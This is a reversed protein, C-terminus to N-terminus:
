PPPSPECTNLSSLPAVRAELGGNLLRLMPNGYYWEIVNMCGHDQALRLWNGMPMGLLSGVIARCVGGHTIIAIEGNQHAAILQELDSLVRATFNAFSEGDPYQFSAPDTFLQEVREPAEEHIAAMTRDEWRGMNIERLAARLQVKLCHREAIAEATRMTRLLDSSYIASLPVSALHEALRCAQELGRESLVIDMHGFLKGASAGEVEGHRILYLRLRQPTNTESM